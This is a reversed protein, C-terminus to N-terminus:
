LMGKKDRIYMGKVIKNVHVFIRQIHWRYYGARAAVDEVRHQYLLDIRDTRLRKLM